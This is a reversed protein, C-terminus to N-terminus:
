FIHSPIKPHIASILLLASVPRLGAGTPFSHFGMGMILVVAVTIVTSTITGAIFFVVPFRINNKEVPIIKRVFIELYRNSELSLFTILLITALAAYWDIRINFYYYVKCFETNLYTYLSLLFAFHYRYKHTFM